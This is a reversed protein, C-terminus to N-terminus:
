ELHVRVINLGFEDTVVEYSNFGEIWFSYEDSGRVSAIRKGRRYVDAGRVYRLDCVLEDNDDYIAAEAAGITLEM